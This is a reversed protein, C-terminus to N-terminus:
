EALRRTFGPRLPNCPSASFDGEWAGEHLQLRIEIPTYDSLYRELTVSAPRTLLPEACVVQAQSAAPPVSVVNLKSAAPFLVTSLALPM